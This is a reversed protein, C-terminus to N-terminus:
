AVTFGMIQAVDADSAIDSIEIAYVYNTGFDSASYETGNISVAKYVTDTTFTQDGIKVTVNEITDFDTTKKVCAVAYANSNSVIIRNKGSKVVGQTLDNGTTLTINYVRLGKGTDDSVIKYTGDETATYKLIKGGGNDLTGTVSDTVLANDSADLIAAATTNSGGTSSITVTIVDGKSAKVTIANPYITGKKAKKAIEVSTTEPTYNGDSDKKARKQVTGEVGFAESPLEAATLQQKAETTTNTSGSDLTTADFTTTAAMAAVSTIAMTAGVVATAVLSKLLSKRM